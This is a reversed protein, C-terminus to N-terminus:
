RGLKDKLKKVRDRLGGKGGSRDTKSQGPYMDYEEDRPIGRSLDGRRLKVDENPGLSYQGKDTLIMQDGLMDTGLNEKVVGHETNDGPKLDKAKKVGEARNREMIEDAAKKAADGIKDAVSGPGDSWKGDKGRPQHPDFRFGDVRAKLAEIREHNSNM